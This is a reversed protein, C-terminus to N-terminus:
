SWMNGLSGIFLGSGTASSSKVFHLARAFPTLERVREDLTQGMHSIDTRGCNGPLRDIGPARLSLTDKVPRLLQRIKASPCTYVSITYISKTYVPPIGQNQIFSSGVTNVAINRCRKLFFYHHIARKKGGGVQRTCVENSWWSWRWNNSWMGGLITIDKKFPFLFFSQSVMQQVGVPALRTHCLWKSILRVFRGNM